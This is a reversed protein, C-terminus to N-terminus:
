LAERRKQELKEELMSMDESVKNEIVRAYLQTVKIDRHGLLKSVTEIPLGNSLTITTAFTHRALHTTLTKNIGCLDAIDKLYANMKQNSKVPLLRNNIECLPHDKYKQIIALAQPLLPVNQPTDTKQRKSYIWKKGDMGIVAHEKTLRSVDAYAFGTYCCFVFVDRIEELRKIDFAKAELKSLEHVTLYGRDVVEMKGSYHVFPDQTLWGNKVSLNIVKRVNKIYKITTNNNCDKQTRLFFEFDTIFAHDLKKLPIDDTKREKALFSKVHSLTTVYRTHTLKAFEKGILEKMRDNHFQFVQVLTKSKTDLGLYANKLEVASVIQDKEIFEAQLNYLRKDISDLYNNLAKSTENKGNVQSKETNWLSPEVYRKTSFEARKGRVTIRCYIPTSGDRKAKAKKLYFLVSFTDRIM